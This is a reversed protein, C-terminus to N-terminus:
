AVAVADSENDSWFLSGLDSGLVECLTLMVESTPRYGDDRELTIITQRSLNATRALASKSIGLNERVERVRNRLRKRLANSMVGFLM